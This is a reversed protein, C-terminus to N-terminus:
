QLALQLCGTQPNRHQLEWPRIVRHQHREAFVERACFRIDVKTSLSWDYYFPFLAQDEAVPLDSFRAYGPVM